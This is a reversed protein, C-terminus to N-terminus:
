FKKFISFNLFSQLYFNYYLPYFYNPINPFISDLRFRGYKFKLKFFNYIIESFGNDFMLSFSSLLLIKKAYSICIFFEDYRKLELFEDKHSRTTSLHFRFYNLPEACYHVTGSKLLYIWFLWDGAFEMNYEFFHSSRKFIVSSSNLICNRYILYKKIFDIGIMKFDYQGLNYDNLNIKYLESILECGSQDVLNTKSFILSVDDNIFKVLKELFTKESFDDSEAIWIWDYKALDLGKKWQKFPSGSNFDNRICHSVKPHNEFRKLYEWSSDTSCDDLLIVEFDHFTQNFITDLRKPLFQRHNYNPVIVSVSM